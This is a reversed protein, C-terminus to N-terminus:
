FIRAVSDGMILLNEITWEKCIFEIGHRFDYINRLNNFHERAQEKSQFAGSFVLNGKGDRLFTMYIKNTSNDFAELNNILSTKM